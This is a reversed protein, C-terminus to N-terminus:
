FDPSCCLVLLLLFVLHSNSTPTLPAAKCRVGVGKGCWSALFGDAQHSGAHRVSAWVGSGEKSISEGVRSHRGHILEPTSILEGLGCSDGEAAERGSVGPSEHGEDGAAVRDSGVLQMGALLAKGFPLLGCPPGPTM